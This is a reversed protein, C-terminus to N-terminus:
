EAGAGGGGDCLGLRGTFLTYSSDSSSSTVVTKEAPLSAACRKPAATPGRAIVVRGGPGSGVPCVTGGTAGGM